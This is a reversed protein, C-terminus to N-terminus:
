QTLRWRGVRKEAYRLASILLTALVMLVIVVAFYKDMQFRNGAQALLGGLSVGVLSM